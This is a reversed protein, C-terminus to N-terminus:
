YMGHFMDIMHRDWSSYLPKWEIGGSAEYIWEMLVDEELYTNCVDSIWAHDVMDYWASRKVDEGIVVLNVWLYYRGVCQGRCSKDVVDVFGDLAAKLIKGAVRSGSKDGCKLDEFSPVVISVKVCGNVMAMRKHRPWGNVRKSNKLSEQCGVHGYRVFWRKQLAECSVTVGPCEDEQGVVCCVRDVVVDFARQLFAM